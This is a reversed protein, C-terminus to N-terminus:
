NRGKVYDSNDYVRALGEAIRQASPKGVYPGFDHIARQMEAVAEEETEYSALVADQFHDIVRWGRYTEETYFPRPTQLEDPHEETLGQEEDIEIRQKFSEIVDRTLIILPVDAFEPMFERKAAIQEAVIAVGDLKDPDWGAGMKKFWAQAGHSAPIRGGNFLFNM